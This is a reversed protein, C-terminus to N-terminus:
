RISITAGLCAGRGGDENHKLELYKVRESRKEYGVIDKRLRLM